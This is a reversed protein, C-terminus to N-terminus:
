PLLLHFVAELIYEEDVGERFALKRGILYAIVIGSAILLGYWHIEINGITLLIPNLLIDGRFVYIVFIALFILAIILIVLFITKKM